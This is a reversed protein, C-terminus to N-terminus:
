DESVCLSMGECFGLFGTLRQYKTHWVKVYKELGKWKM